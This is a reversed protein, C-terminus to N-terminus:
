VLPQRIDKGLLASDDNALTRILELHFYGDLSNSDPTFERHFAERASDIENKLRSYLDRAARGQKVRESHYLRIEAVRLRAANQARVHLQRETESLEESTKPAASAISQLKTKGAVGELVAAGFAAILELAGTEIQGNHSDAYLVAPVRERTVLPFIACREKPAEGVVEAIPGSLERRSRLAIVPDKSEIANAFAPASALPVTPLQATLGRTATPKLNQRDVVFLLSRDCFGKTADVMIRSWQQESEFVRLRRASQNLKEFIERPFRSLESRLRAAFQSLIPELKQDLTSSVPEVPHPQAM